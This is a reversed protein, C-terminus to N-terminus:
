REALAAPLARRGDIGLKRYTVTLHHEVTRLTLFLEEAIERNSAGAAAREAIRREQATLADAGFRPANPRRGGIRELAAASYEALRTSGYEDALRNAEALATRADGRRGARHHALGMHFLSYAHILRMPTNELVSVSEALTDADRTVQGMVRLAMGVARPAGWARAADLEEAALRTAEDTRGLRYAVMAARSRWAIEAPNLVDHEALRRGCELFDALAADLEGREARVLGRGYWLWNAFYTSQWVEPPGAAAMVREASAIDGREIHARVLYGEWGSPLPSGGLMGDRIDVAAQAEGTADALRGAHFAVVSRFAHGVEAFLPQGLVPAGAMMVDCFESASDFEDARYLAIAGFMHAVLGPVTHAPVAERALLALRVVEERSRGLSSLHHATLVAAMLASGPYPAAIERLRALRDAQPFGPIGVGAAVAFAQLASVLEPAPGALAASARDLVDCAMSWTGNTASAITLDTAMRMVFEPDPALEPPLDHAGDFAEGLHEVSARVDIGLESRGLEALVGLRVGEGPREALARELYRVAPEAAGRRMAIRAAARLSDVAWPEGIVDCVLLHASVQEAVREAPGRATLTRAALAHAARRQSPGIESDVAARVISHVFRLPSGHRLVGLRTLTDAARAAVDPALGALTAVLPLDAGDDLIAVARAVAVCDKAGGPEARRLRTLVWRSVRQPSFETLEAIAERTPQTGREDLSTMLERLLFPNGGTVRQCAAVFAPEPERAFVAHAFAAVDAEALGAVDVISLRRALKGVLKEETGWMGTTRAVMLSVPVDDAAGALYAFGRLSAADAWQVDDVVLVLPAQEALRVVLWYLGRLVAFPADAPVGAWPWVVAAAPAVVGGFLEARAPESLEAVVPQLLQRVLGFAYDQELPHAQARLVRYGRGAALEAAQGLLATKGAGPTGEFMLYAPTSTSLATDVVALQDDRGFLAYDDTM